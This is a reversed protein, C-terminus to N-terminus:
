IHILSLSDVIRDLLRFGEPKIKTLDSDDLFHRYNFPIRLCNLKLSAFFAADSETWFYEYFKSWFFDFKEQGMVKLMAEKHETEHGPFGTIFNEMNLHGGTAAGRLVIPKGDSDVIKTGKTRLFGSM